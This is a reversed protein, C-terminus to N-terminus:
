YANLPPVEGFKQIYTYLMERELTEPESSEILCVWMQDYPFHEMFKDIKKYRRGCIHAQSKYNPNLSKKLNIVRDLFCDAKGIYLTGEKDNGLVRAIPKIVDKEVTFLKYVGGGKRFDKEIQDWFSPHSIKYAKIKSSM